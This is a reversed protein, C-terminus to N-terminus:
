PASLLLVPVPCGQAAMDAVRGLRSRRRTGDGHRGLVLIDFGHEAAYDTVVQGPNDRDASFVVQASMRIGSDSSQGRRLEHFLAEARERLARGEADLGEHGEARLTHRVVSLAVVHGGDHGVLAAAVRLAEAADPSGDFGVLVRRFPGVSRV